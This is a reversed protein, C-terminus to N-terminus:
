KQVKEETLIDKQNDVWLIISINGNKSYSLRRRQVTWLFNAYIIEEGVTPVPICGDYTTTGESVGVDDADYL